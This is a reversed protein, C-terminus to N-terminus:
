YKAEYPDKDYLYIKDTYPKHNILNLLSNTKGSGFSGIILIKYLHDPMQPWNPNHKKINNKKTIYDFNFLKTKNEQM